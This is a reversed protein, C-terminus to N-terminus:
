PQLELLDLIDGSAKSGLHAEGLHCVVSGRSIGRPQYLVARADQSIVKANVWTCLAPQFHAPHTAYAAIKKLMRAKNIFVAERLDAHKPLVEYLSAIAHYPGTMRRDLHTALNLYFSDIEHQPLQNFAIFSAGTLGFLGKCSSYAIVEALGHDVELGISATADLMLQAGVRDALTRLDGIPLLLGASTETYCAVVWDYNGSVSTIEQWDCVTVSSVQGANRQAMQAFSILRQAYYGSDIVLVKGYLFNLSAIELALSASGQLRAIQAHGTMTKLATLVAEDVQSYDQDGRGFCPRLGLLNEELLSAPGATFLAKRANQAAVHSHITAEPM